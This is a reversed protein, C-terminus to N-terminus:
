VAKLPSPARRTRSIARVMDQAAQSKEADTRPTSPPQTTEGGTTETEGGTEPKTKRLKKDSRAKNWADRAKYAKWASAPTTYSQENGDKDKVTFPFDKSAAGVKALRMAASYGIKVWATKEVWKGFAANKIDDNRLVNAYVVGLAKAIEFRADIAKDFLARENNLASVIDAKQKATVFGRPMNEYKSM